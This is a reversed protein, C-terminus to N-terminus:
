EGRRNGGIRVNFDGVILVRKGDGIWEEIIKTIKDVVEKIRRNYVIIINKEKKSLKVRRVKLGYKWKGM